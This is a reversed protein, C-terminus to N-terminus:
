QECAYLASNYAATLRGAVRAAEGVLEYSSANQMAAYLVEWEAEAAAKEVWIGTRAECKPDTEPLMAWVSLLEVRAEETAQREAMLCGSLTLGVLGLAVTVGVGRGVKGIRM